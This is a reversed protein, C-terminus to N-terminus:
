SLGIANAISAAALGAATREAVALSFKTTRSLAESTQESKGDKAAEAAEAVAAVEELEERTSAESALVQALEELEAALTELDIGLGVPNTIIMNESASAGSGAAGVSGSFNYVDGVQVAGQTDGFMAIARIIADPNNGATGLLERVISLDQEGWLANMLKHLSIGTGSQPALQDFDTLVTGQYSPVYDEIMWRSAELYASQDRPDFAAVTLCLRRLSDAALVEPSGSFLTTREFNAHESPEQLGAFGLAVSVTPVLEHGAPAASVDVVRVAVTPISTARRGWSRAQHGLEGLLREPIIEVEGRIRFRGDYLLEGFQRVLSDDVILPVGEHCHRTSSASIVWQREGNGLSFPLLRVCGLGGKVLSEKGEPSLVQVLRGGSRIEHVQLSEAENRHRAAQSTASLGPSMPVWDFISFGDLVVSGLM